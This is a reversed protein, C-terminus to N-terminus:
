HNSSQDFILYIHALIPYTCPYILQIGPAMTLNINLLSEKEEHVVSSIQLAKKVSLEIIERKNVNYEIM